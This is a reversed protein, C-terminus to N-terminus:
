FTINLNFGYRKLTPSQLDSGAGYVFQDVDFDDSKAFYLLNRGILSLSANRIFTKALISQPFNYTLTVERLKAYTRSQMNNEAQNYNRSIWDQLFTATTNPAFQLEDYNTIAGTLPDYEITAGNSIVVGDGVYSKIGKTDQERAIGMAGQITEINRGGRFTQRKIQNNIVGGVRGDFQVMLSWNRYSFKNVLGWSWDPNINGLYKAVPAVIPRGGADYIYKGNPATYYGGSFYKDVRDGVYYFGNRQQGDAFEVITEKFTSWNLMVNWNLGRDSSLPKADLTIEFGDRKTKGGNVIAGTYGTSEPLTITSIGPGDINTFYTFDLGIRNKLFAVDMGLESATSFSPKLDANTITNTYYSGPQNNYVLPSSYIASNRYSPGDYPTLYTSGYGLPNGSLSVSPIPGISTANFSGGVKAYAGRVKLMSIVEPLELAESLVVSLSTSPYFYTNNQVPLTSHKDWRGTVSLHLWDKYSVDALWYASYVSMPANFNYAKIPNLSNDFTYAGPSLSSAPVNLYDTTVYSSQYTFTRLNGGLSATLSFDPSFKKNYTMLVDTNNEFLTRNDERYDGKAQERGYSTASYPFKENRYVDYTNIQTRGVINLDDTIKYNLSMFGYVDTKQHGRLWEKAFFWPNNYRTHEAYKQQIGEKGEEWYDQMDDVSWDAGGWLIINYIMSNPGYQVDPINETYQRNYNINSEFRLKESFDFGTSMNFNDSNLDTNPVIGKQYSHTYSFRLDYKDGSASVAINNTSLLGAQLFRQLNDKGRAVWPTPKINGEWTSGDGFTTTYTETPSVEGDYQPILVNDGFKPGWIDYDADNKGTKGDKYAYKGHDGPGYEDQVKPRTLFGNEWMTSSNYEVSFGRKDKSGRKTTIIIAGNIGRSGYLASASPGKLVSYSEIDDPSINWTDSQIPVGDVVFLTGRGRLSINPAGLLEASAGINLGAVKGVLSNVPNPERAKVMESGSVTQTAYGVKAKAKEIGLATIVVEALQKADVELTIDLASRGSVAVEQTVYGVFSIVLADNASVNNVSFKGQADSITGNSTGKVVINVGPMPSNDDGSKVTGSVSSQAWAPSAAIFSAFLILYLIRGSLSFCKKLLPNQM